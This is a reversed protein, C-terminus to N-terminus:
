LAHDTRVIALWSGVLGLVVGGALALALVPAPLFELRIHTGAGALLAELRPATLRFVGFLLLIAAGVGLIGHVAGEAMMPLRIFRRTAGVLRLVDLEDKRRHIALSLAGGVVYAAGAAVILGLTLVVAWLARRLAAVKDAWDGVLEVDEVGPTARLKHVVPSSAAVDGHGPALTVEISAPLFGSEVGALLEREPGLSEALRRHAVDPPVYDVSQAAPLGELARKIAHAREPAVDADLYVILQVGDGWAGGRSLNWATLAVGGLVLLAAAMAGVGALLSARRFVLSRWVRGIGLGIARV